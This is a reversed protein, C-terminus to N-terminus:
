FEYKLTNKLHNCKHDSAILDEPIGEILDLCDINKFFAKIEDSSYIKTKDNDNEFMNIGSTQYLDITIKKSNMEFIITFGHRNQILNLVYEKLIFFSDFIRKKLGNEHFTTLEFNKINQM